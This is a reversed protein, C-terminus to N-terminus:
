TTRSLIVYSAKVKNDFIYGLSLYLLFKVLKGSLLPEIFHFFRTARYGLMKFNTFRFMKFRDEKQNFFFCSSIDSQRM